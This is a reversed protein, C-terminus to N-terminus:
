FSPSHSGHAAGAQAPTQLVGGAIDGLPGGGRLDGRFVAALTGTQHHCGRCCHGRRTFAFRCGGHLDGGSLRQVLSFGPEFGGHGRLLDDAGGIEAFARPGSLYGLGSKWGCLHPRDPGLCCYDRLRHGARGAWRHSEGCEVIGGGGSHGPGCIAFLGASVGLWSASLCPDSLGPPSKQFFPFHAQHFLPRARLGLNHKRRLKLYDDWFGIAGFAVTVGLALWVFINSLDAWLLTPVIICLDILVGGMTPTGAKARHSSPGEERIYQGIQFQKLKEILWPGLLLSLLLATLSSYATRFTIYRFLNLVHLHSYFKLYLYYFM